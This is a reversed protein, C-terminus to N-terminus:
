CPKWARIRWSDMAPWLGTFGAAWNKSKCSKWILFGRSRKWGFIVLPFGAGHLIKSINALFFPVDAMLFLGALLAAWGLPWHWRHRSVIFFLTSAIIMTSTVAVGYAAALKSSSQFGAVLAVTCIMLMWNVPAVYIQGIQAVSTHRINLRPLYGLQIAQRTLSFAGSIVAQLSLIGMVNARSVAIGYEGHFCERIAYIPSTGIDGFDVGLAALSLQALGGKFGARSGERAPKEPAAKTATPEADTM